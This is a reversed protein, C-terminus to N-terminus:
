SRRRTICKLTVSCGVAWHAACCSTSAKGARADKGYKKHRWEYLRNQLDKRHEKEAVNLMIHGCATITVTRKCKARWSCPTTIDILLFYAMDGVTMEPFKLSESPDPMNTTDTTKNILCPLSGEGADRAM